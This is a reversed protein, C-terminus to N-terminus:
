LKAKWAPLEIQFTTGEGPTSSVSIKGGCDKVIQKCSYLGLGLGNNRNTSFPQFLESLTERDIGKGEDRITVLVGEEKRSAEVHIVQGANSAQIGNLLLNVFVHDLHSPDSSVMPLDTGIEQVVKVSSVRFYSKLLDVVREIVEKLDVPKRLVKQPRAYSLLKHSLIQFRKLHGQLEFLTQEPDDQGMSITLSIASLINRIDHAISAALTGTIALKESQILSFQTEELDKALKSLQRERELESSVRMALLSLFRIDEEDLPEDSRGDMICFTGIFQEDPNRLPVGAYRTIGALAPILGAM